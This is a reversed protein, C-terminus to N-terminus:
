FFTTSLLSVAKTLPSGLPRRCTTPECIPRCHRRCLSGERTYPQIFRSRREKFNWVQQVSLPFVYNANQSIHVTYVDDVHVMILENRNFIKYETKLSIWSQCLQWAAGFDLSSAQLQPLAESASTLMLCCCSDLM